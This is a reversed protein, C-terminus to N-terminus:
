QTKSNKKETIRTSQASKGFIAQILGGFVYALSAAVGYIAQMCPGLLFLFLAGKLPPAGFPSITNCLPSTGLSLPSTSVLASADGAFRVLELRRGGGGGLAEAVRRGWSGPDNAGFDNGGM